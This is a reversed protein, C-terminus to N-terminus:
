VLSTHRLAHMLGWGSFADVQGKPRRWLFVAVATRHATYLLEDIFRDNIHGDTCGLETAFIGTSHGTKPTWAAVALRHLIDFFRGLAAERLTNFEYRTLALVYQFDHSFQDNLLSVSPM